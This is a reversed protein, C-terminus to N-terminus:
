KFVSNLGELFCKVVTFTRASKVDVKCFGQGRSCPLGIQLGIQLLIIGVKLFPNPSGVSALPLTGRRVANFFRVRFPGRSAPFFGQGYM